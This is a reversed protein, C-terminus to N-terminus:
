LANSRWSIAYILQLPSHLNHSNKYVVILNFDIPFKLLWHTTKVTSIHLLLPTLLMWNWINKRENNAVCVCLTSFKCVTDSESRLRNERTHARAAPHQHTKHHLCSVAFKYVYYTKWVCYESFFLPQLTLWM